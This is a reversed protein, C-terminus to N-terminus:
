LKKMQMKDEEFNEETDTEDDFLASFEEDDSTEDREFENAIIM